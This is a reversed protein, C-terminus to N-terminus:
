AIGYPANTKEPYGEWLDDERFPIRPPEFPYACVTGIQVFKEVGARRAEEMLHIGMVANDYFLAGPHARNWGIGGANAALHIVLHAGDVVRACDEPRRLDVDPYRPVVIDHPLAGAEKLRRVLPRGLFGDGGTVVIRKGRLDGM